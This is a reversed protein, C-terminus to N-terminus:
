RQLLYLLKPVSFLNVISLFFKGVLLVLFLICLTMQIPRGYQIQYQSRQLQRHLAGIWGYLQKNYTEDDCDGLCSKTREYCADLEQVIFQALIIFLDIFYAVFM